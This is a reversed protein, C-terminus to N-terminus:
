PAYCAAASGHCPAFEFRVWKQTSTWGRDRVRKQALAAMRLFGHAGMRVRKQTVYHLRCGAQLLALRRARRGPASWNTFARPECRYCCASACRIATARLRHSQDGIAPHGACRLPWVRDIPPSHKLFENHGFAQRVGLEDPFNPSAQIGPNESSAIEQTSPRCRGALLSFAPSQGGRDALAIQTRTIRASHSSCHSHQQQGAMDPFAAGFYALYAAAARIRTLLPAAKEPLTGTEAHIRLGDAPWHCACRAASCPCIM